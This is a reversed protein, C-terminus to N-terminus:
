WHHPQLTAFVRGENGNKRARGSTSLDNKIDSMSMSIKLDDYDELRDTRLCRPGLALESRVKTRSACLFGLKTVRGGLSLM